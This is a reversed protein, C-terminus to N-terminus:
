RGAALARARMRIEALRLTTGRIIDGEDLFLIGQGRLHPTHAGRPSEDLFFVARQGPRDILPLDTVRLTFGDLSGGELEMWMTRAAGGKVAEAVDLELRSVILRDGHSNERWESKVSRVTAVVVTRAGTIREDLTAVPTIAATLATAMLCSSALTWMAIRRVPQLDRGRQKM